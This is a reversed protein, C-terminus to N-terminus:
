DVQQSTNLNLELSRKKLKLEAYKFEGSKFGLISGFTIDNENKSILFLASRYANEEILPKPQVYFNFGDTSYGLYLQESTYKKVNGVAMLLFYYGNVYTAQIHWPSNLESYELWPKNIFRVIKSERFNTFDLGNQSTRRIVFSADKSKYNKKGSNLEVEYSIYENNVQLFTPSILHSNTPTYPPNSMIVTEIPSWNIGDNSTQRVITRQASSKLKSRNNASKAGRKLLAMPTICSGRYYLEFQGNNYMWDVDSWFGQIPEKKMERFSEKVSPCDQIPNKIGKPEEWNIGDNSVVVTPNEYRKAFQDIGVKGFYPTFVMWYKYGRFGNPFYEVDPHCYSAQNGSIDILYNKNLSNPYNANAKTHINISQSKIEFISEWNTKDKSILDPSEEPFMDKEKKGCSIMMLLLLM